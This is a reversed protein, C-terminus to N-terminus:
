HEDSMRNIRLALAVIQEFVQLAYSFERCFERGLKRGLVQAVPSPHPVVDTFNMGLKLLVEVIAFGLGIPLDHDQGYALPHRAPPAAIRRM